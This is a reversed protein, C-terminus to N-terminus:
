RDSFPAIELNKHYCELRNGRIERWLMQSCKLSFHSAHSRKRLFPPNFVFFSYEDSDFSINSHPYLKQLPIDHEYHEHNESKWARNGAERLDSVDSLRVLRHAVYTAPERESKKERLKFWLNAMIKHTRLWGVADYAHNLCDFKHSASFYIFKQDYFTQRKSSRTGVIKKHSTKINFVSIHHACGHNNLNCWHEYAKTKNLVNGYKSFFFFSSFQFSSFHKPVYYESKAMVDPRVRFYVHASAEDCPPFSSWWKSGWCTGKKGHRVSWCWSLHSVYNKIANFTM